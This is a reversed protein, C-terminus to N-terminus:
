LDLVESLLFPPMFCLFHYAVAFGGWPTSYPQNWKSSLMSALQKYTTIANYGRDGTVSMLLPVFSSQETDRIHQEYARKKINEDYHYCPSLQLQSNTLTHPIFVRVGFFARKFRGGSGM